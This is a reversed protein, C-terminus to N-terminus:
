GTFGIGVATGKTTMTCVFPYVIDTAPTFTLNGGDVFAITVAGATTFLLGNYVTAGDALATAARYGEAVQIAQGLANLDLHRIDSM